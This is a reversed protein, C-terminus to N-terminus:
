SPEPAAPARLLVVTADRALSPQVSVSAFALSKELADGVGRFEAVVVAGHV